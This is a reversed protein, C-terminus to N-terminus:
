VGGLKIYISTEDEGFDGELDSICSDVSSVSDEDVCSAQANAQGDNEVDAALLFSNDDIGNKTLSKYYYKGECDGVGASSTPDSPFDSALLYGGTVLAEGASDDDAALCVGDGEPFVGYDSYYEQFALSLSDLERIRGVDRARAPAGMISPILTASLIGIIVIVVILEILTFGRRNQFSKKLHM